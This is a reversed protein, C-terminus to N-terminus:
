SVVYCRPLAISVGELPKVGAMQWPDDSFNTFFVNTTGNPQPGGHVAQLGANTAALRCVARM